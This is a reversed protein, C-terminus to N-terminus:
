FWETIKIEKPFLVKKLEGGKYESIMPKKTIYKEISMEKLFYETQVVLEEDLLKSNFLINRKPIMLSNRTKADYSSTDVKSYYYTSADFVRAKHKRLEVLEEKSLPTGIPRPPERNVGVLNSGIISAIIDSSPTKDSKPNSIIERKINTSFTIIDDLRGNSDVERLFARIRAIKPKTVAAGEFDFWINLFEKKIYEKVLRKIDDIGFKLSVPVFVPKKNKYDLLHYVEGVFKLYKDITIIPLKKKTIIDYREIKINPILAIPASFTYYYEFYGSIKEIHNFETYPNFRFTQSIIYPYKDMWEEFGFLKKIQKDERESLVRNITAIDVLKSHEFIVKPFNKGEKIFLEKTLSKADITKIPRDIDLTGIRFRKVNFDSKKDSICEKIEINKVM